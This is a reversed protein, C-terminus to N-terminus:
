RLVKELRLKRQKWDPMVSSLLNRWEENHDGYFAHALEHAIVYDILNPAARVLDVNLTINGNPTYSGWRKTMRRIILHPRHLGKREFPPLMASLRNPFLSRAEIAYFATLLRRCHAVSNPERAGIILRAGDIRVFPDASREVALRYPRGAFLHTEGSLYCRDPTFAPEASLRDLERFVWPGKRRCRSAIAECSADFPAFVTVAGGPDIKIKLVRRDTRCLKAAVERSGWAIAVQEAVDFHRALKSM